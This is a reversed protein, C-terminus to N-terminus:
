KINKGVSKRWENLQRQIEEVIRDSGNAKLKAVFEDIVKDIDEVMGSRLNTNSDYENIVNTCAAIENMIPKTNVAFGLNTDQISNNNLEKLLNGFDKSVVSPLDGALINGFQWGYWFYYAYDAYNAINKNRPSITVDLRGENNYIYHENEIGFRVMNAFTKDTNLLELFMLSRDPYKTKGSLAQFGSQVYDTTMVVLKSTSLATERGAYMDPKIEIYGGSFSGALKGANELARDPDFNTHDYPFIKDDVLKKLTKCLDKYEETEYINFVVEGSGKGKFSEIGPINAVALGNLSEFPYFRKVGNLMGVIPQDKLKPQDADRATKAEYLFPIMDKVTSWEGSKPIKLNYKDSMTKNYLFCFRDAMDKYTPVGYIHNDITLADWGGQPVLKRTEPLYKSILDEIAYYAGAQANATFNYSAGTFVIDMYQGSSIVTPIKEKYDAMTYFHSDLTVNIKEKLYKGIKEWVMDMDPRVYDVATYWILKAHDLGSPSTDATSIAKGTGETTSDKSSKSGQCGIFMMAFVLIIAALKCLFSKKMVFDEKLIRFDKLIKLFLINLNWGAATSFYIM